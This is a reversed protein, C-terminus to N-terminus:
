KVKNPTDRQDISRPTTPAVPVLRLDRHNGTHPELDPARPPPPGRPRHAPDTRQSATSGGKAARARTVTLFAHALMALTIHRYWSDFRRVQYQDLVRGGIGSCRVLRGGYTRSYYQRLTVSRVGLFRSEVRNQGQVGAAAIQRSCTLTRNDGFWTLNRDSVRSLSM